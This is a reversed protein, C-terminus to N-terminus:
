SKQERIDQIMSKLADKGVFGKLLQDGVIFSPTGRIGFKEMYILNNDILKSVEASNKDEKLKEVDLGVKKALRELAAENMQGRHEMLEKHYEFYKGQKDAAVAWQAAERSTPSLIPVEKFIVRLDDEEDLLAVIDDLAKKCYGCNYDFFEVITVSADDSGVQPSKGSYLFDEGDRIADQAAKNAEQEQKVQYSEIARIVIGGNELLYDKVIQEVESKQLYLKSLDEESQQAMAPMAGLAFTLGSVLSLLSKM